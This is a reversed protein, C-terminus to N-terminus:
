RMLDYYMWLVSYRDKLDKAYWIAHQIIKQGYTTEFNHIDLDIGTLYTALRELASYGIEVHKIRCTHEMGCTCAKPQLLQIFDM